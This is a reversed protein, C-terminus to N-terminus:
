PTKRTCMKLGSILDFATKGDEPIYGDLTYWVSLEIQWRNLQVALLWVVMVIALWLQIM